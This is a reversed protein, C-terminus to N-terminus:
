AVPVRETLHCFSFCPSHVHYVSSELQDCVSSQHQCHGAEGEGIVRLRFWGATTVTDYLLHLKSKLEIKTASAEMCLPVPMEVTM